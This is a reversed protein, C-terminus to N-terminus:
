RKNMGQPILGWTAGKDELINETIEAGHKVYVRGIDTNRFRFRVRAGSPLGDLPKIENPMGYVVKTGFYEM